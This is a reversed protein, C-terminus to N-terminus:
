SLLARGGFDLSVQALCDDMPLCFGYREIGRKDGLAMAIAEGLTIATDEISHHEDVELDGKVDISLDIQGHKAIQDLMHDFFKLGTHINSVGTGELNLSVTVDTEKTFRRHTVSRCSQSLFDYIYSWSKTKLCIVDNLEVTSQVEDTGLFENENIYIARAGLNKALAVDTWRDGIVYSNQLDYKETDLYKKLMGTRPKRGNSPNDATSRDIYVQDFAIGQSALIRMITNQVPWFDREPFTSTGLM